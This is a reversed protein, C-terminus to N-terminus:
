VCTPLYFFAYVLTVITQNVRDLTTENKGRNVLALGHGDRKTVHHTCVSCVMRGRPSENRELNDMALRVCLVGM